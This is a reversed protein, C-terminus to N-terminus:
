STLSPRWRTFRGKQTRESESKSWDTQKTSHNSASTNPQHKPSKPHAWGERRSISHIITPSSSRFIITRRPVMTASELTMSTTWCNTLTKQRNSSLIIKFLNSPITRSSWPITQTWLSSIKRIKKKKTERPLWSLQFTLASSSIRLIRKRNLETRTLLIISWEKQNPIRVRFQISTHLLCRRRGWIREKSRRNETWDIWNPRVEMELFPLEEIINKQDIHLHVRIIIM